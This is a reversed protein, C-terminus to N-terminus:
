SKLPALGPGPAEVEFVNLTMSVLTYYGLVGILEAIGAEGFADRARAFTTDSVHFTDILERAFDHVIRGDEDEIEPTAGVRIADIISDELGAERALKEHAYWEFQATWHRAIMLIGLEKLRQSLSTGFRVLEGLSQARDAFEPSNLWALFPGRIGARPGSVIKDYVARQAASMDEVRLEPLRKAM